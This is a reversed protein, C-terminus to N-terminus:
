RPRRLYSSPGAERLAVNGDANQTPWSCTARHEILHGPRCRWKLARGAPKERFPVPRRLQPRVGLGDASGGRPIQQLLKREAYLKDAVEELRCDYEGISETLSAITELAAGLTPALERSLYVAVKYNFSQATCKLLRAGINRVPGWAQNVLKTRTEVLADRSHLIALHSQYTAGHLKIPSLLEPDLWALRALKEADIRDTKYEEGYVLRVKRANAVLIEYVHDDL